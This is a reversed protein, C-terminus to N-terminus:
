LITLKQVSVQQGQLLLMIYYMGSKLKQRAKFTKLQNGMEKKYTHQEVLAGAANLIRIEVAQPQQLRYRVEFHAASPNPFVVFGLDAPRVTTISTLVLTYQNRVPSFCGPATQLRVTYTGPMPNYVVATTDGALLVGDRYWYYHASQIVPAAVLMTTSTQASDIRVLTNNGKWTIRVTDTTTCGAPSTLKIWANTVAAATIKKTSSLTDGDWWSYKVPAPQPLQLTVTDWYCATQQKAIFVPLPAMSVTTQWTDALGSAGADQLRFIIDAQLPIGAGQLVSLSLSAKLAAASLTDTLLTYTNGGNTSASLRLKGSLSTSWALTYYDTICKAIIGKEIRLYSATTVPCTATSCSATTNYKALFMTNTNGFTLGMATTNRTSGSVWLNNCGDKKAFTGFDYDANGFVYVSALSGATDIASLFIDNSGNGKVGKAKDPGSWLASVVKGPLVGMWGKNTREATNGWLYLKGNIVAMGDAQMGTARRNWVIRGSPNYKTISNYILDENYTATSNYAPAKVRDIHTSYYNGDDDMCFTMPQIPSWQGEKNEYFPLLGVVKRTATDWKVLAHTTSDLSFAPTIGGYATTSFSSKDLNVPFVIVGNNDYRAGELRDYNNESSGYGYPNYVSANGTPLTNYHLLNFDADLHFIFKTWPWYKGSLDKVLGNTFEYEMFGYDSLMVYLDNNKGMLLSANGLGIKGDPFTSNDFPKVWVINGAKNLKFAYNASKVVRAPAPFIDAMPYASNRLHGLVYVNEFDDVALRETYNHDGYSYYYTGMERKWLLKGAADMKGVFWGQQTINGNEWPFPLFFGTFYKNGYRDWVMDRINYQRFAGFTDVECFAGTVANPLSDSIVQINIRSSDTCGEKTTVKYDVVKVGGSSFTLNRADRTSDNNGIVDAANSGWWYTAGNSSSNTISLREGALYQNRLKNIAAVPKRVVTAAYNVSTLTPCGLRTDDMQVYAWLDFLNNNTGNSRYPLIKPDVQLTITGGTGPIKPFAPDVWYNIGPRSNKVLVLIPEKDCITDRTTSLQPLLNNNQYYVTFFKSIAATGCENYRIARVEVVSSDLPPLWTSVGWPDGNGSKSAISQGNLYITYDHNYRATDVWITFRGYQCVKTSSTTVNLVPEANNPVRVGLTLSDSEGGRSVKLTISDKATPLGVYNYHYDTSVLQKNKYWQFDYTIPSNNIAYVKGTTCFSDISVTFKVAPRTPGGGSTSTILIGGDGGAFLRNGVKRIFNYHTGAVAASPQEEWYRGGTTTKWITNSAPPGAAYGTMENEFYIAGGSEYTPSSIPQWTAGGNTTKEVYQYDSGFGLSDNLFFLQAPERKNIETWNNGGDTTKLTHDDGAAWGTTASTFYLAGFYEDIKNYCKSWTLGGNTTKLIGDKQTIFGLNSNVFFLDFIGLTAKNGPPTLDQYVVSWSNGANTSRIIMPYNFIRGAVVVTNKESAYVFEGKFFLNQLSDLGNYKTFKTVLKGSDSVLALGQQFLVYGEAESYFHGAILHNSSLPDSYVKKWQAHGLLSTCVFALSVVLRNPNLFM